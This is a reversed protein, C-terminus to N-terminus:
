DGFANGFEDWIRQAIEDPTKGATNVLLDSTRAYFPVRQELLASATTGADTGTQLMPRTSTDGIRALATHTDAWLWVSLCNNRLVRVNSRNMLAGGGCAAVQDVDLGLEEIEAQEMRRFEDEGHTRFIETVAVGAKEEIRKDIDVLTMGTLAAIREAVISKGAGMFGILAINRRADRRTKWLARRMAVVPATRDTFLEFAPLAQDLLWERGDILRCGARSADSVLPSPHGYNADLVIMKRSLLVPDILTSETSVTSILLHAGTLAEKVRDLPLAECGLHEAAARAREFTRNVLTVRSGARILACAAARGAGGAGIVVVKKGAPEFGSEKVALSVGGIDTNYGVYAGDRRVITNVSGVKKADEEVADLHELIDAKFPATINLGRIGIERATAVIEGATAAALRVYHADIDLERFATNFILPSKSQFVPNGAVAFLETV